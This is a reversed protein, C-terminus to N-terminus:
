SASLGTSSTSTKTNAPFDSKYKKEEEEEKKKERKKKKGINLLELVFL